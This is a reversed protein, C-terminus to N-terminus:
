TPSGTRPSPAHRRRQRLVGDAGRAHLRRYLRGQGHDPPAAAGDARRSLGHLGSVLDAVPIGPIAPRGDDGLTLSLVGTMAELALDHAARGPYAGDQGFASISCYVIGPNDAKVAEYGIGFRAAVGPRFSEVIVDAAKCLRFLDARGQESKLDLVVSKKGRDMNRFFVSTRQTRRGIHRGPDGEGPPEVKIVEAGHDALATTLYPGPLFWSLDVVKIGELKMRRKGLLSDNDAGLPSCAAQALREGDIRIPNAIVRLEGKAPHPVASVMGTERAFDSDLAQDLRYVPAAPLLGNFKALWEGTTRTRFTPDLADTSRPATPRARTPIPSLASRGRPRRPRDGRVLSLWFKQTMCMIFIWGDRTPFTQVPALSLHASRPLRPSVDGENLYWSGPYTLQHM